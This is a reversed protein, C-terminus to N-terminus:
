VTNTPVYFVACDLGIWHRTRVTEFVDAVWFGRRQLRLKSTTQAAAAWSTCLWVSSVSWSSGDADSATRWCSYVCCVTRRPDGDRNLSVPPLSVTSVATTPPCGPVSASLPPSDNWSKLCSLRRQVSTQITVMDATDLGAKKLLPTTVAHKQSSPFRGQSLSAVCSCILLSTSRFPRSLTSLVLSWQHMPSTMVVRHVTAASCATPSHSFPHVQQHQPPQRHEQGQKYGCGPCQELRSMLWIIDFLSSINPYTILKFKSTTYILHIIRASVSVRLGVMLSVNMFRGSLRSQFTRSESVVFVVRGTHNSTCHQWRGLSRTCIYGGHDTSIVVTVDPYNGM